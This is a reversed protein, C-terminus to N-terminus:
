GVCVPKSSWKGEPGCFVQGSGKLTYGENCSYVLYTGPELSVVNSRPICDEGSQCQSKHLKWSGNPPQGPVQCPPRLPRTPQTTTTRRTPRTPNPSETTMRNSTNGGRCLDQDEDSGDACNRVGNCRLSEEICAGYACRFNFAPCSCNMLTQSNCKQLEM